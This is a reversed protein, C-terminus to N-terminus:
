SSYNLNPASDTLFYTLRLAILIFVWLYIGNLMNLWARPILLIDCPYKGVWEFMPSIILILKFVWMFALDLQNIEWRSKQPKIGSEKGRVRNIYKFSNTGM